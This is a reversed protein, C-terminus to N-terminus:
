RIVLHFSSVFSWGDEDWASLSPAADDLLADDGRRAMEQFLAAWGQRPKQAPRIVLSDNEATIDVDGQFGTQALLPKPIRVGRSNGIRVIRTKM